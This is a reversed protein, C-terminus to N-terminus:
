RLHVECLVWENNHQNCHPRWGQGTMLGHCNSSQGCSRGALLPFEKEHLQVCPINFILHLAMHRNGSKSPSELDPTISGAYLNSWGQSQPLFSTVLSKCSLGFGPSACFAPDSPWTTQDSVQLVPKLNSLQSCAFLLDSTPRDKMTVHHHDPHLM